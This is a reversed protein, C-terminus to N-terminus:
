AVLTAIQLIHTITIVDLLEMNDNVIPILSIGSTRFFVLAKEMNRAELYTISLNIFPQLPSHMSTGRLIARLLDGESIAGIVKSHSTVIVCRSCNHSIREAADLLTGSSEITFDSLNM